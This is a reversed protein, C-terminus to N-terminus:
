NVETVIVSDTENVWGVWYFPGTATVFGVWDNHYPNRRVEKVLVIDIPSIRLVDGAKVEGAQKTTAM